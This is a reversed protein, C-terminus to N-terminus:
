KIKKVRGKQERVGNERERFAEYGVREIERSDEGNKRIKVGFEKRESLIGMEDM